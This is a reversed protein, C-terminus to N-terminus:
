TTRDSEGTEIRWTPTSEGTLERSTKNAMAWNMEPHLTCVFAYEGAESPATFTGSEGGAINETDFADGDTATVTHAASDKNVVTVKEGLRVEPEAPSFM